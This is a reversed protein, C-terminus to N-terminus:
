PQDRQRNNIRGINIKAVVSRWGILAYIIPPSDKVPYNRTTITKTASV